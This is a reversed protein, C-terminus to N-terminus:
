ELRNTRRHRDLLSDLVVIMAPGALHEPHPDTEVGAFGDLGVVVVV